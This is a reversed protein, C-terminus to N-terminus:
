VPRVEDISHTSIRSDVRSQAEVWKAGSGTGSSTLSTASLQRHLEYVASRKAKDVAELKEDYRGMTQRRREQETKM